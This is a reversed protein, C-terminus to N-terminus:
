RPRPPHNGMVAAERDQYHCFLGDLRCRHLVQLNEKSLGCLRLLGGHTHIRKHLLAFQGILYSPLIPLQDLELVLRYTFHQELLAWLSAALEAGEEMTAATPHLRVFLWDPGRDVEMTWGTQLASMTM